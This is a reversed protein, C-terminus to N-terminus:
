RRAGGVAIRRDGGGAAPRGITAGSLEASWPTRLDGIQAAAQRDLAVEVAAGGFPEVRQGPVGLRVAATLRKWARM